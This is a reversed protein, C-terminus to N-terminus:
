FASESKLCKISSTAAEVVEPDQSELFPQLDRLREPDGHDGLIELICAAERGRGAQELSKAQELLAGGTSPGLKVLLMYASTSVDENPDCLAAAM